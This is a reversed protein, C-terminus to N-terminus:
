ILSPGLRKAVVAGVEVGGRPIALVIVDDRGAYKALARALAEGADARDRFM